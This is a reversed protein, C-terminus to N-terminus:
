QLTNVLAAAEGASVQKTLHFVGTPLHSEEQLFTKMNRLAAVVEERTVGVAEPRCDLGIDRLFERVRRVDQGQYDAVLQVCMGLLQGHLFQRGTMAEICWALYHESGEKPRYHGARLCLRIGSRFLEGLLFLGEETLMRLESGGKYLRNVLATADVDVLVDYDAEESLNAERWDWRATYISLLTGVGAKNLVPPASLILDFDVLVHEPRIEGVYRVRGNERVAISTSFSADDSLVSPILVLPLGKKWAVHKALEIAATGGIGFVASGEEFSGTRQEIIERDESVRMELQTEEEPFYPSVLPWPKAQTIVIPKERLGAPLSPILDRGYVPVVVFPDNKEGLVM